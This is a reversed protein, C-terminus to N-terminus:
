GKPKAKRRPAIREVRHDRVFALERRGEILRAEEPTLSFFRRGEEVGGGAARKLEIWERASLVVIAIDGDEGPYPDDLELSFNGGTPGPGGSMTRGLGDLVAIEVFRSLEEASRPERYSAVLGTRHDRM